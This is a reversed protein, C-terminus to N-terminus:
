LEPVPEVQMYAPDRQIARVRILEHREGAIGLECFPM